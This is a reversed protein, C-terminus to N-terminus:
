STCEGASLSEIPLKPQRFKEPAELFRRIALASAAKLPAEAGFGSLELRTHRHITPLPNLSMWADTTPRGLLDWAGEVSQGALVIVDPDIMTTILALAQGLLHSRREVLGRAIQDGDRARRYTDAIVELDARSDITPALHKRIEDAFAGDGLEAGLCGNRQCAECYRSVGPVVIHGLHGELYNAGRMTQGNISIGCGVGDGVYLVALVPVMARSDHWAEALALGRQVRDVVVPIQIGSQLIDQAPVDEWPHAIVIRGDNDVGAPLTVGLGVIDDLRLGVEAPLQFARGRLGLLVNEPRGTRDKPLATRALAHGRLDFLGIEVNLAIFIALVALRDNLDLLTSRRGPKGPIRREEPEAREVILGETRLEDSVRGISITTIGLAEALDGRQLPGRRHLEELISRRNRLRQLPANLGEASPVARGPPRSLPSRDTM